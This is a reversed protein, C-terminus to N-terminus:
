EAKATEDATMIADVLEAHKMSKYGSIDLGAAIEKLQAVTLETLVIEEEAGPQIAANEAKDKAEAEEEEQRRKIERYLEKTPIASLLVFNSEPVVKEQVGFTRDKCWGGNNIAEAYETSETDFVRSEHQKHHLYVKAM